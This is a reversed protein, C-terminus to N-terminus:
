RAEVDGLPRVAHVPQATRLGDGTGCGLLGGGYLDSKRPQLRGREPLTEQAVAGGRGSTVSGRVVSHQHIHELLM